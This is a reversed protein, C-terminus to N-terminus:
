IGQHYGQHPHHPHHPHLPPALGMHQMNPPGLSFEFLYTLVM